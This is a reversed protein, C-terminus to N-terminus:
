ALVAGARLVCGEGLRDGRQRVGGLREAPAAEEVTSDISPDDACETEERSGLERDVEVDDDVALACVGPMTTASVRDGGEGGGVADDVLQGPERDVVPGGLQATCEVQGGVDLVA